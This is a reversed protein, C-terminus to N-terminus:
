ADSDFAQAHRRASPRGRPFRESGSNGRLRWRDPEKQDARSMEVAERWNLLMESRTRELSRRRGFAFAALAIIIWTCHRWLAAM